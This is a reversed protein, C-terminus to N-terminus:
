VFNAKKIDGDIGKLQACTTISLSKIKLRFVHMVGFFVSVGVFAPNPIPTNKSPRKWGGVPLGFAEAFKPKCAVGLLAIICM